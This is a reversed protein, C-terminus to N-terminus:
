IGLARHIGTIFNSELLDIEGDALFLEQVEEMLQKVDTKSYNYRELTKTIKQISQYDNDHEIERHIHIYTEKSVKNLILEKEEEKEFYNSRAAYLLVYAKLDDQTWNDSHDIMITFKSKRGFYM